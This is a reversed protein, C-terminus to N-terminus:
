HARDVEVSYLGNSYAFLRVVGEIRHWFDFTMRSSWKLVIRSGNSVQRKRKGQMGSWGPM